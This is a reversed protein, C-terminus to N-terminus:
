AEISHTLVVFGKHDRVEFAKFGQLYEQKENVPMAMTKAIVSLCFAFSGSAEESGGGVCSLLNLSYM